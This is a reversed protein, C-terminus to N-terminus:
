PKVVEFSHQMYKYCQLLRLWIKKEVNNRSLQMPFQTLTVCLQYCPKVADSFEFDKTCIKPKLTLACQHAEITQLNSIDMM